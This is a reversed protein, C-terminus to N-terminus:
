FCGWLQYLWGWIAFTVKAHVCVKILMAALTIFADIHDKFNIRLFASGLGGGARASSQGESALLWRLASSLSASCGSKLRDRHPLRCTLPKPMKALTPFFLAQGPTRNVRYLGPEGAWPVTGSVILIPMGVNNISELYDGM